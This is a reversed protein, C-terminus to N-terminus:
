YGPAFGAFHGSYMLYFYGAISLVTFIYTAWLAARNNKINVVVVVSLGAFVVFFLPILLIRGLLDIPFSLSPAMPNFHMYLIFSDVAAGLSFFIVGIARATKFGIQLQNGSTNEM